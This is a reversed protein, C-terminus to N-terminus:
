VPTYVSSLTQGASPHRELIALDAVFCLCLVVLANVCLCRAFAGGRSHRLSINIKDNRTKTAAFPQRPVYRQKM